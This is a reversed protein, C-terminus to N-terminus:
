SANFTTESIWTSNKCARSQVFDCSIRAIARFRVFSCLAPWILGTRLVRNGIGAREEKAYLSAFLGAGGEGGSEQSRVM